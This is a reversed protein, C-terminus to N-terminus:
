QYQNISPDIEFEVPLSDMRVREVSVPKDTVLREELAQRRMEAYSEQLSEDEM